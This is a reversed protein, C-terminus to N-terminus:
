TGGRSGIQRLMRLHHRREAAVRALGSIFEQRLQAKTSAPLSEADIDAFGALIESMLSSWSGDDGALGDPVGAVDPHSAIREMLTELQRAADPRGAGALGAPSISLVAAMAALKVDDRTVEAHAQEYRRWTGESVKAYASARRAAERISIGLDERHQKLLSAVSPPVDAM